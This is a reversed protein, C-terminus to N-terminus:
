LQPDVFHILDLDKLCRLATAPTIECALKLLKKVKEPEEHLHAQQRWDLFEVGSIEKKALEVDVGLQEAIFALFPEPNNNIKKMVAEWLRRLDKKLVPDRDGKLMIVDIIKYPTSSSNFIVHVNESKLLQTSIPPYTVYAQIAGSSLMSEANVQEAEVHEVKPQSIGVSDFAIQVVYHSLAQWEFGVPQGQLDALSEIQKNAVIVDGGNSYDPFLVLDMPQELIQNIQTVESMSSAFGDIHNKVVTRRFDAISLNEILRLDIGLEEDLGIQEAFYLPYYGIWPTTALVIKNLQPRESCGLLAGSLLM